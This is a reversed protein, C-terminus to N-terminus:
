SPFVEEIRQTKSIQEFPLQLMLLLSLSVKKGTVKREQDSSTMMEEDRRQRWVILNM